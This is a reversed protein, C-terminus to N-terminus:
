KPYISKWHKKVEDNNNLACLDDIFRRTHTYYRRAATYNTKALEEMWRSEYYHLYLNAIYPAPDTGMPIGIIQQYSRSGFSFYANDIVYEIMQICEQKTYSMGKNKGKDFKAETNSIKIYQCTGGKFAKDLMSVLVEKLDELNIKTYLTSFDFTNISTASRKKNIGEIDQLVDKTSETIWMRNVGTYAKVKKCYNTHSRKVLKLVKTLKKAVQKSVCNKAAIIFRFKVPKKHMKVISYIIPLKKNESSIVCKLLKNKEV